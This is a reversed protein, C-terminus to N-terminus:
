IVHQHKLHVNTVIYALFILHFELHLRVDLWIDEFAAKMEVELVDSLVYLLCQELESVSSPDWVPREDERKNDTILQVCLTQIHSFTHFLVYHLVATIRTHVAAFFLLM